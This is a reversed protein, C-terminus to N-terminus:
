LPQLPAIFYWAQKRLPGPPDTFVCSQTDHYNVRDANCAAQTPYPGFFMQIPQAGAAAPAALAFMAAVAAAFGLVIRM